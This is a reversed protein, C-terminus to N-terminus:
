ILKRQFYGEVSKLHYSLANRGKNTTYYKNSNKWEEARIFGNNTLTDFVGNLSAGSLNAEYIIRTPEDIGKDIAELVDFYIELISRRVM